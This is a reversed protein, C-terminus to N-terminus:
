DVLISKLLVKLEVVMYPRRFTARAVIPLKAVNMM